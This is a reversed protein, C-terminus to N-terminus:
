MKYYKTLLNLLISVLNHYYYYYQTCLLYNLLHYYDQSWDNFYYSDHDSSVFKLGELVFNDPNDYILM